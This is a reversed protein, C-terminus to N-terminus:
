WVIRKQTGDNLLITVGRGDKSIIIDKVPFLEKDTIRKGAEKWLLLTIFIREGVFAGRANLVACRETEPHLGSTHELNVEKWGLFPIMALQYKENKIVHATRGQKKVTEEEIKNVSYPLSYHGLHVEVPTASTARDVRLIGNPLLIDALKFKVDADNRLGANRYYIEQEFRNFAYVSLAKWPEDGKKITYNMAVEGEKGDAMWPFASNYSLRNYNESFRWNEKANAPMETSTRVETIGSELYNTILINSGNQFTNKAIKKNKAEWIGGNEKASWFINSEPLLLSLFAKGMWYASGRCSYGQVAPEFAGYFGLTPVRDKLLNPNQLFQLLTGSAIRRLCGYDISTDNLYGALSFPSVAAFRYTISRGWMIMGGERDFMLPYNDTMEKFNAIFRQAYEPYNKKGFYESWLIGYMQYAWMSYYDYSSNDIYWGEGRYDNLSQDLFRVLLPEDVKYGENKFFSLIFINFFRWNSPVTPGEAYSLMTTALRDKQEKTLPQWLIEPISFLSIALAGFEVLNQSPGKKEGRPEIYDPHSPTVINVLQHRYYDAVKIGNLEIDPSEKLLPAAIYLTRCLGELKETPIQQESKPYSVGEQKPFTMADGITHVYSFAGNLLYKAGDIWHKRTMGTYPSLTFDPESVVFAEMSAKGSNQCLTTQAILTFFLLCGIKIRKLLSYFYRSYGSNQFTYFYLLKM